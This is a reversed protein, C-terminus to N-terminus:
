TTVCVIKNKLSTRFFHPSAVNFSIKGVDLNLLGQLYNLAAPIVNVRTAKYRVSNM